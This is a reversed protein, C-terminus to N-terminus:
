LNKFLEKIITERRIKFQKVENIRFNNELILDVVSSFADKRVM